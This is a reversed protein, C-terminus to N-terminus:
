DVAAKAMTAGIIQMVFPLLFGSISVHEGGVTPSPLVILHSIPHTFLARKDQAACFAKQTVVAIRAHRCGFTAMEDLLAGFFHNRTADMVILNDDMTDYGPRLVPLYWTGGAFFPGPAPCDPRSERRENNPTELFGDVDKGSLFRKEWRSVIEAGYRSAMISRTELAIFKEPARDDVTALPGHASEGFVHWALDIGGEGDFRRVWDLGTGAPPGVYFATAYDRNETMLTIIADQLGADNLVTRVFTGALRFHNRVVAAKEPALTRWLACLLLSSAAYLTCTSQLHNPSLAFYGKCARFVAADDENLAPGTWMVPRKMGALREGFWGDKPPKDALFWVLADEHLHTTAATKGSRAVWMPCGTFRPWQCAMHRAAAEAQQDLPALVIEGGETLTEFVHKGLSSPVKGEITLMETLATDFALRESLWRIETLFRRFEPRTSSREWLTDASSDNSFQSKRMMVNLRALDDREKAPSPPEGARSRGATVSKARNRPFDDPKRGRARAYEAAFRYYFLTDIFPQLVPTAAPLRFCTDGSLTTMDDQQPMGEATLVAFPVNHRHLGEMVALAEDIRTTRTANVIIAHGVHGNSLTEPAVDRFDLAKGISRWSNEEVKLAAEHLTADIAADGILLCAHSRANAEALKSAFSQLAPNKVMGELLGALNRLAKIHDIAAPRRNMRFALWVAFLHLCLLTCLTSKLGSVTVEEGSMVPVVGGSKATVLAMDAFVKETIGVTIIRLRELDKAFAVMDATTGSWSVPLVLDKEPFFARGPDVLTAPSIGRVDLGPLLQHFVPVAMLGMHHSSGMGAIVVRKLGRFTKGFRRELRREKLDFRPPAEGDPIHFNLIDRFRLPIENLHSEYFSGHLEKRIRFPNLVTSFAEIDPLPNGEFDTVQAFRRAGEGNLGTEIRVFIERGELPLVTVRFPKLLRNQERVYRARRDAANKRNEPNVNGGTEPLSRRYADELRRLANSRERVLSQPFLGLAANIDSVVMIDEDDSRQVVFAPRNHCAVYLRRPSHLSMGATAIQGGEATMRRVAEIFAMEDLKERTKGRIKRYVRYDIAHSGAHYADLGSDLQRMVEDYCRKEGTLRDFCHGWLLALYETSNDSQFRTEVVTELFDRIENEVKSSFQGNLVICREQRADFFPHTNRVTVASQLAWRGHAIIPQSLFRLSRPDPVGDRFARTPPAGNRKSATLLQPLVDMRQLYTLVTAGGWGYVNLGKEAWYLIQWDTNPINRAKPWLTELIGQLAVHLGPILKQRSLLASDLLRFVCRVADTDFDMPPRFSSSALRRWVAAELDLSIGAPQSTPSPPPCGPQEAALAEFIQDFANLIEPIEPNENQLPPTERITRGILSQIVVPPLDYQASLRAVARKLDDPTGMPIMPMTGTSGPMGPLLVPREAATNLLARADIHKKGGSLFPEYLAPDHGQFALLRRQREKLDTEDADPHWLGLLKRSQNPHAEANLLADALRFISGLSKRLRIPEQEDGFMGIGTSDPARYIIASMATLLRTLSNGASGFYCVIGCM